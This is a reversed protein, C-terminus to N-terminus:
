FTREYRLEVQCIRIDNGTLTDTSDAGNRSLTVPVIQGPNATASFTFTTQMLQNPTGPVAVVVPQVEAAATATTNGGQVGSKARAELRVDGATGLSYWLVRIRIPRGTAADSPMTVTGSWDTKVSPLMKYVVQDASHMPGVVTTGQQVLRAPVEVTGLNTTSGPREDHFMKSRDSVMVNSLRVANVAVAPGTHIFATTPSGNMSVNSLLLEGTTMDIFYPVIASSSVSSGTWKNGSLSTNSFKIPRSPQVAAGKMEVHPATCSPGMHLFSDSLHFDGVRDLDILPYDGADREMKCNTMLVAITWDQGNAYDSSNSTIRLDTGTDGEWECGLIHVTNGGAGM